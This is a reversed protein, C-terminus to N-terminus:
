KNLQKMDHIMFKHHIEDNTFVVNKYGSVM